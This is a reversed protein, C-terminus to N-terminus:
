KDRFARTLQDELPKVFYSLVTREQTQIFAEVPMGPLLKVGGLRKTEVADFAVRITYFAQGTKSDAAADASIRSVEGVIQPTTRQNFSTFRLTVRAGLQVQDIENPSIRAEVRLSDGVPVILMIPEGQAIVGGVTHVALQHVIGDQPARVDVHRLQDEAAVKREELETSKARVEGLERAVDSKIQQSIQLIQLETESIKGKTQATGALLAGHEGELRAADRQLATV